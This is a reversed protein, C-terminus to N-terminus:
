PYKPLDPGGGTSFLAKIAARSNHPLKLQIRFELIHKQINITNQYKKSVWFTTNFFFNFKSVFYVL